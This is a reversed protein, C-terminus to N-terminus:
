FSDIIKRWQEKECLGQGDCGDDSKCAASYSPVNQPPNHYPFDFQVGWGFPDNGYANVRNGPRPENDYPPGGPGGWIHYHYGAADLKPLIDDLTPPNGGGMPNADIAYHNDIWQDFGCTPSHMFEDHVNNIYIELDEPAWGNGGTPVGEWFQLHITSQPANIIKLKVGDDFTHDVVESSGLIDIYFEQVLDVSSVARSIKIPTLYEGSAVHGNNWEEFFMRQNSPVTISRFEEALQDSILELVVFGCPRVLVSYYQDGADTSWSLTLFDEGANQFKQVYTSLDNTWLGLNYDMFGDLASMDGLKEAFIKEVDLLSLDGYPHHTCNITHLGFGSPGPRTTDTTGTYGDLAVRGQTACECAGNTCSGFDERVPIFDYFWNYCSRPDSAAWTHKSIGHGVSQSETPSLLCALLFVVVLSKLSMKHSGM